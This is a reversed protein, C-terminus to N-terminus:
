RLPPAPSLLTRRRAPPLMSITMGLEMTASIGSPNRYCDWCSRTSIERLSDTKLVYEGLRSNHADVPIGVKNSANSRYIAVVDDYQGSKCNQIFDERTGSPFEQARTLPLSWYLPFPSKSYRSLLSLASVRGSRARM